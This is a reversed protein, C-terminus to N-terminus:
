TKHQFQHLCKRTRAPVVHITTNIGSEVVGNNTCSITSGNLDNSVHIVSMMSVFPQNSSRSFSFTTSSIVLLPASSVGEKPIIRTYRDGANPLSVIWYLFSSENSFSTCTFNAHGGPCVTTTEVPTLITSLIGLTTCMM